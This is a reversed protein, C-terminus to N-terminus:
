HHCEVLPTMHGLVKYSMYNPSSFDTNSSPTAGYPIKQVAVGHKAAHDYSDRVFGVSATTADLCADPSPDVHTARGESMLLLAEFIKRYGVDKPFTFLIKKGRRPVILIFPKHKLTGTSIVATGKEGHIQSIYNHDDLGKGADFALNIGSQLKAQAYWYTELNKDRHAEIGQHDPAGLFVNNFTAFRLSQDLIRRLIREIGALTHVGMDYGLGRGSIKERLLGRSEVAKALEDADQNEIFRGTVSLIKGLHEQLGHKIFYDLANSGLAFDAAYIRNPNDRHLQVAADVEENPLTIPKEVMIPAKTKQLFHKLLPLHYKVPVALVIASPDIDGQTIAKDLQEPTLEQKYSFGAKKFSKSQEERRAAAITPNEYCTDVSIVDLGKPFNKQLAGLVPAYFLPAVSKEGGGGGVLVLTKKGDSSEALLNKSNSKKHASGTVHEVYYGGM